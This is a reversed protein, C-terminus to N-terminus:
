RMLRGEEGTPCGRRQLHWADRLPSGVAPVRELDQLNGIGIAFVAVAIVLTGTGGESLALLPALDRPVGVREELGLDDEVIHRAQVRRVEEM